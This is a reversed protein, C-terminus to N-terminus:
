AGPQGISHPTFPDPHPHPESAETRTIVMAFEDTTLESTAPQHLSLFHPGKSRLPIRVSHAFRIPNESLSPM